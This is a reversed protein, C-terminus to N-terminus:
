ISAFSEFSCHPLTLSAEDWSAPESRSLSRATDKAEDAVSSDTAGGWGILPEAGVGVPADPAGHLTPVTPKQASPTSKRAFHIVGNRADNSVVGDGCLRILAGRKSTAEALMWPSTHVGVPVDPAGPLTLVTPKQASPTSKRAFHIVGNRADNSVVGDGCLRILAGRKSTAKAWMWPLTHVGVPADPAGHLTPVTRKQASPTSKRAFHIVENRTDNSV